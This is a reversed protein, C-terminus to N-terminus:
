NIGITGFECWVDVVAFSNGWHQNTCELYLGLFQTVNPSNISLQTM